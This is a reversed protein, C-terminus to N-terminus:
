GGFDLFDQLFSGRKKKGYGKGGNHDHEGHGRDHQDHDHDHDDLDREPPRGREGRIEALFDEDPEAAAAELEILKDLEGRDLWIGRCGPCADILVGNRDVEVLTKGCAPCTLTRTSM